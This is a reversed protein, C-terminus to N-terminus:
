PLVDGHHWEGAHWTLIVPSSSEVRLMVQAWNHRYSLSAMTRTALDFLDASTLDAADAQQAVSHWMHSRAWRADVATVAHSAYAEYRLYDYLFLEAYAHATTLFEDRSITKSTNNTM